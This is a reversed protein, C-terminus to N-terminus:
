IKVIREMMKMLYIQFVTLWVSHTLFGTAIDERAKQIVVMIWAYM